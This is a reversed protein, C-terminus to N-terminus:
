ESALMKKESSRKLDSDQESAELVKQQGGKQPRGQDSQLMWKGRGLEEEAM